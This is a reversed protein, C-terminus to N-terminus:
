KALLMFGTTGVREAIRLSVTTNDMAEFVSGRESIFGEEFTSGGADVPGAHYYRLGQRGFGSTFQWNTASEASQLVFLLTDLFDNSIGIGAGERIVFFTRTGAGLPVQPQKSDSDLEPIRLADETSLVMIEGIDLASYIIRMPGTYERLIWIDGETSSTGSALLISNQGHRSGDVCDVGNSAVFLQDGVSMVERIDSPRFANETDSTISVYPALVTCVVIEEDLRVQLGKRNTERELRFTLADREEATLDLGAYALQWNSARGAIPVVDGVLLPEDLADTTDNTYVIITRLYLYKEGKWGLVVRYNPDEEGDVVLHSGSVLSIEQGTEKNILNISGGSIVQQDNDVTKTPYNIDTIQWESGLFPIVLDKSSIGDGREIGWFKITYYIGSLDAVVDIEPETYRVNGGVWISQTTEISGDITGGSRLAEFTNSTVRYLRTQVLDPHLSGDQGDSFPNATTVEEPTSFPYESFHLGRDGIVRDIRDGILFGEVIGNTDKKPEKTEPKEKEPKKEPKEGTPDIGLGPREGGPTGALDGSCAGSTLLGISGLSMLGQKAASLFGQMRSKFTRKNRVLRRM